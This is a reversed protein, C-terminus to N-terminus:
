DANKVPRVKRARAAKSPIAVRDLVIQPLTNTAYAQWYDEEIQKWLLKNYGKAVTRMTKTMARVTDVLGAYSSIRLRPLSTPPIEVVNTNGKGWRVKIHVTIEPLDRSPDRNLWWSRFLLMRRRMEARKPIIDTYLEGVQNDRELQEMRRCLTASPTYRGEVLFRLTRRTIGLLMSLRHLSLGPTITLSKIRDVPWERIIAKYAASHQQHEENPNMFVEVIGKQHL